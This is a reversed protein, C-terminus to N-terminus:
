RAPQHACVRQSAYREMNGYMNIRGLIEYINANDLIGRVKTILFDKAARAARKVKSDASIEEDTRSQAIDHRMNDVHGNEHTMTFYQWFQWYNNQPNLIKAAYMKNLALAIQANGEKDAYKITAALVGEPLNIIAYKDPKANKGSLKQGVESDMVETYVEEVKSIYGAAIIQDLIQERVSLDDLNGHGNQSNAADIVTAEIGEINSLQDASEQVTQELAM